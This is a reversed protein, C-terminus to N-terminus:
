TTLAGEISQRMEETKLAQELADLRHTYETGLGKYYPRLRGIVRAAEADLTYREPRQGAVTAIFLEPTAKALAAVDTMAAVYQAAVNRGHHREVYGSSVKADELLPMVVDNVYTAAHSHIGQAQQEVQSLPRAQMSQLQAM